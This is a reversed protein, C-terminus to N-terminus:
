RRGAAAGQHAFYGSGFDVKRAKRPREGNDAVLAFGRKTLGLDLYQKADHVHSFDNKEPEDKWRGGGSSLSVRVIVYGNNFGRRLIPCDLSILQGPEGGAANQVLGAQV